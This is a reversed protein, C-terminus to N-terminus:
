VEESLALRLSRAFALITRRLREQEGLLPHARSQGQSGPVVLGDRQIREQVQRLQESALVLEDLLRLGAADDSFDYTALLRARL